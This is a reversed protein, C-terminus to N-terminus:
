PSVVASKRSLSKAEKCLDCRCRFVNYRRVTGHDAPAKKGKNWPVKQSLQKITKQNHCDECLLQCKSLEVLINEWSYKSFLKTVEIKKLLPDIHDFELNESSNCEVCVGGLVEIAMSRRKAYRKKQYERHYLNNDM